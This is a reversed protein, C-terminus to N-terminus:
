EAQPKVVLQAGRETQEVDIVSDALPEAVEEAIYLETGAQETVEDGDAPAEAFGVALGTQGGAAPEASVRVGYTDPIEQQVRAQQLVEAATPSLQLV